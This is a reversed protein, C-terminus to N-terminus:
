STSAVCKEATRVCPLRNDQTEEFSTKEFIAGGKQQIHEAMAALYKLPHFRAQQAFRVGPAGTFPVMEIFKAEFGLERALAADEQLLERERAPDEARSSQYLYGPVWGFGCDASLSRVIRDVEDIAAAGADGFSRAADKGFKSVLEHLRADTVYTLDATTRQTDGAGLRDRELLAVRVGEEALLYAATIDAHGSLDGLRDPGCRSWWRRGHRAREAILAFFGERQAEDGDCATVAEECQDVVLVAGALDRGLLAELPRPGPTMVAVRRGDRLLRGCVGARVLSSKGSGSPGVVVLM